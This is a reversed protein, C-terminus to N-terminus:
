RSLLAAAFISSNLAVILPPLISMVAVASVVFAVVSLSVGNVSVSDSMPTNFSDPSAPKENTSVLASILTALPVFMLPLPSTVMLAVAFDSFLIMDAPTM